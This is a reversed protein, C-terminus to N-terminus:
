STQPRGGEVETGGAVTLGTDKMFRHNGKSMVCTEAALTKRHLKSIAFVGQWSIGDLFRLEGTIREAIKQDVEDPTLSASMSPDCFAMNWGWEDLFSYIAQNYPVVKDFVANLTKNIASFVITHTKIGAQGSQTVLVGNDNLKSKAMTYFETTYLQYCPGGELPDDLDMIIVDFKEESKELSEYADNIILELRPDAFAAANEPFHTKCFDVVDGDIDVMVCAEVSKHRLVERATSGEGGGGIFVRKPNPHSFMSPHVLCEHYVFEDVQTSQILGDIILSTGFPKLNVVDVRQFKSQCGALVEDIRYQGCLGEEVEEHIWKSM